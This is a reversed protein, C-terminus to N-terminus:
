LDLTISFLQYISELIEEDQEEVVTELGDKTLATKKTQFFGGLPRKSM